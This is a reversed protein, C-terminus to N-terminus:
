REEAGNKQMGCFEKGSIVKPNVTYDNKSESPPPVLPEPTWEEILTNKEYNKLRFSHFVRTLVFVNNNVCLNLILTESKESVELKIWAPSFDRMCKLNDEFQTCRRAVNGNRDVTYKLWLEANDCAFDSKDM